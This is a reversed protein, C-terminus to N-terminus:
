GLPAESFELLFGKGNISRDSEFRIYLVNSSSQVHPPKNIGCFSGILTGNMDAGDRIQLKDLNCAPYRGELDFFTTKLSIRKGVPFEIVWECLDRNDYGGDPKLSVVGSLQNKIHQGCVAFFFPNLCNGSNGM